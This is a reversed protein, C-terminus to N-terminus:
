KAPAIPGSAKCAEPHCQSAARVFVKAGEMRGELIRVPLVILRISEEYSMTGCPSVDPAGAKSDKRRRRGATPKRLDVLMAEDLLMRVDEKSIDLVLVRTDQDLLVVQRRSLLEAAGHQDHLKIADLYQDHISASVGVPVPQGSSKVVNETGPRFPLLWQSVLDMCTSASKSEEPVTRTAAGDQYAQGSPVWATSAILVAFSFSKILKDFIDFIM